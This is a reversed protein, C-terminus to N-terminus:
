NKSSGGHLKGSHSCWSANEGATDSPEENEADEGADTTEQTTLKLRESLHSSTDREGTQSSNTKITCVIQQESKQLLALFLYKYFQIQLVVKTSNESSPFGSRLM